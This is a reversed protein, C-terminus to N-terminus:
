LIEAYNKEAKFLHVLSLVELNCPTIHVVHLVEIVLRLQHIYQVPNTLM